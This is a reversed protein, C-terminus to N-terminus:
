GRGPWMRRLTDDRWWYHHALAAAAHLGIVFYGINAILEHLEELRHALARDVGILVPWHVGLFAVERGEANLMLWGIAPMALLLAYLGVHALTSAARAWASPPPAIPPVGHRFRFILRLATLLFLLTGLQIHAARMLARATSGRPAFGRLEMAAYVVAVLAVTLWHLFIAHRGYRAVIAPTNM